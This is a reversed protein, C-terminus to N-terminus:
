QTVHPIAGFAQLYRERCNPCEMLHTYFNQRMELEFGGASFHEMGSVVEACALGGPLSDAPNDLMVVFLVGAVALVIGVLAASLYPRVVPVRGPPGIQEALRNLTGPPCAQWAETNQKNEVM